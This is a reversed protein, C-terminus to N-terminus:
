NIFRSERLPIKNNLTMLLYGLLIHQHTHTNFHFNNLLYHQESKSFAVTLKKCLTLAVV